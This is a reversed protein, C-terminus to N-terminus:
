WLFTQRFPGYKLKKVIDIECKVWSKPNVSIAVGVAVRCFELFRCSGESPIRWKFQTLSSSGWKGSYTNSFLM